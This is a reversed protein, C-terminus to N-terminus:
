ANCIDCKLIFDKLTANMQPWYFVERARRLCGEIGLHSSHVMKIMEKRLNSPLILCEGEFLLGDKATFEDRFQFYPKVEASVEDLSKPWGELAVTMLM